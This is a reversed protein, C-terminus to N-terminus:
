LKSVSLIIIFTKKLVSKSLLVEAAEKEYYVSFTQYVWINTVSDVM